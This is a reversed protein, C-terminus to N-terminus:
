APKNLIWNSVKEPLNWWAAPASYVCVFLRDKEALIRQLDDRVQEPTKETRILYATPTLRAWNKYSAIMRAMPESSAPEIFEFVVVLQLIM